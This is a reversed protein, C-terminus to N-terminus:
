PRRAGMARALPAAALYAVLSAAVSVTPLVQVLPGISTPRVADLLLVLASAVAVICSVTRVEQEGSLGGLNGASRDFVARARSHTWATEMARAVLGAARAIASEQLLAVFAADSAEVDTRPQSLMAALSVAHPWTAKLSRSIDDVISM